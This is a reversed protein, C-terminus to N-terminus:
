RCLHLRVGPRTTVPPVNAPLQAPMLDIKRPLARKVADLNPMLAVTRYSGSLQLNFKRLRSLSAGQGGISEDFRAEIRRFEPLDVVQLMVARLAKHYAVCEDFLPSEPLPYFGYRPLLERIERDITPQDPELLALIESAVSKEVQGTLESIRMLLDPYARVAEHRFTQLIVFLEDRRMRLKGRMGAHRCLQRQFEVDRTVDVSGIRELLWLHDRADAAVRRATASATAELDRLLREAAFADITQSSM